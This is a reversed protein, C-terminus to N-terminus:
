LMYFLGSYCSYYLKEISVYSVGVYPDMRFCNYKCGTLFMYADSYAACDMMLRAFNILIKLFYYTFECNHYLFLFFDIYGFLFSM